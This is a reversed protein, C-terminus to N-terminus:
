AAAELAMDRLAELKAGIAALRQKEQEASFSADRKQEIIRAMEQRKEDIQGQLATVLNHGLREFQQVVDRHIEQQMRPLERQLNQHLEEGIKTLLSHKFQQETWVFLVVQAVAFVAWGIPGSFSIAVYILVLQQLIRWLVTSWNGWESIAGEIGIIDRLTDAILTQAWQSFRQRDRQPDPAFEPAIIMNTRELEVKFEIVQEEVERMLTDLDPRISAPIREESWERTKRQIYHEIERKIPVAIRQQAAQKDIFGQFFSTVTNFLSVENLDLNQADHRWNERMEHMYDRLNASIKHAIVEGFRLITREIDDKRRELKQMHAAVEDITQEFRELPIDQLAKQQEITQLAEAVFTELCQASESLAASNKQDSTLFRELERELAPVGTMELGNQEGAEQPQMRAELAGLANIFFVRRNYLDEDFSGDEGSFYPALFGRFYSSVEDIERQNIQNVRNVVFFVNQVRGPKFETKIFHKEDDSLLRMANLVFIIAHSERLYRTTVRTRSPHDGLGPSDVLRVGNACLPSRCEIQAYDIQKFRDIYGQDNLKEEDEATLQFQQLYDERSLLAPQDSGATYVAVEESEGYVLVSIIATCKLTKAALLKNGLMANLLTSKGHKFEGYVLVKFLGEQLDRARRMLLAAESSMGLGPVLSGGTELTAPEQQPEGLLLAADRLASTITDSKHRTLSYGSSM